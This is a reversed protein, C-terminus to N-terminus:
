PFVIEVRRNQPERVGKATPVRPNSEGLGRIAMDSRPVGMHELAVAVANARRLSLRVNYGASGSLDTYGTVEIRVPAGAHWHDAAQHIVAFGEPTINYRDWDFFVLYVQRLPPPPAPPAPPLPAPPPPPPPGFRLILSAVFNNTSYGGAKYTVPLIANNHLTPNGATALYRYDLDLALMPSINYEIGAIAQYGFEWTSGHLLTGAPVVVPTPALHVPVKLNLSDVVDVAGIGGGIHPTVPWGFTFDYLLNTMISHSRRSGDFVNHGFGAFSDESNNRYSYEEELRWPGWQFGARAGVNYGDNFTEKGGLSFAHLPPAAFFTSTQVHEDNLATWGGEGGFYFVKPGPPLVLLQASAQGCGLAMALAVGAGLLYRNKM